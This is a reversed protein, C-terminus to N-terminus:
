QISQQVHACYINHCTLISPRELYRGHCTQISPLESYSGNVYHHTLIPKYLTITTSKSLFHSSSPLLKPLYLMLKCTLEPSLTYPQFITLKILLYERIRAAMHRCPLHLYTLYSDLILPINSPHTNCTQIQLM